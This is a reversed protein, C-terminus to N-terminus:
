SEEADLANMDELWPSELVDVVYGSKATPVTICKV